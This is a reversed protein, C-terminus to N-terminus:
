LPSPRDLAVQGRIGRLGPSHCRSCSLWHCYACHCSSFALWLSSRRGVLAGDPLVRNRRHVALTGLLRIAECGRKQHTWSGQHTIKAPLHLIDHHIYHRVFDRQYLLGMEM